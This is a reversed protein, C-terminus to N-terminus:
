DDVQAVDVPRALRVDFLDGVAEHLHDHRLLDFLGLGDDRLLFVVLLVVFLLLVGLLLVGLALRLRRLRRAIRLGLRAGRGLTARAQRGVHLLHAHELDEAGLALVARDGVQDLAAVDRAVGVLHERLDAADTDGAGARAPQARGLARAAGAAQAAAARQARRSGAFDAGALAAALAGDLR